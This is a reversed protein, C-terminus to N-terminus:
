TFLVRVSDSFAREDGYDVLLSCSPALKLLSCIDQTLKQSAPSIEVRDGDQLSHLKTKPFLKTPNLIKKVNNNPGESLVLEFQSLDNLDVLRECWGHDSSYEFIHVPLADFIEHGILIVPQGQHEIIYKQTMEPLSSYWYASFDKDFYRDTGKFKEYQLSGGAASIISQKQQDKLHKSLDILHM